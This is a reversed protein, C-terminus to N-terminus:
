VIVDASAMRTRRFERLVLYLEVLLLAAAGLAFAWYLEAQEPVQAALPPGAAGPPDAPLADAL